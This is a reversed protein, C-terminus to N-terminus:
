IHIRLLVYYITLHKDVIEYTYMNVVHIVLPYIHWVHIYVYEYFSWAFLVYYITLPKDIIEYTCMNVYM